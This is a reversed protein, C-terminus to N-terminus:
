SVPITKPFGPYPVPKGAHQAAQNPYDQWILAYSNHFSKIELIDETNLNDNGQILIDKGGSVWGAPATITNNQVLIFPRTGAWVWVVNNDSVSGSLNTPWVPPASGSEGSQTCRYYYQSVNPPQGPPVVLDGVSYSQGGKWTNGGGYATEITLFNFLASGASHYVPFLWFRFKM